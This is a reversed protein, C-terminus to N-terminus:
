NKDDQTFIINPAHIKLRPFSVAYMEISFPTVPHRTFLPVYSLGSAMGHQQWSSWKLQIYHVLFFTLKKEIRQGKYILQFQRATVNIISVREDLSPKPSPMSAAQLTTSHNSMASGSRAGRVPLERCCVSVISINNVM